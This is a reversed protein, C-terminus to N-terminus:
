RSDDSRLTRRHLIGVTHKKSPDVLAHKYDAIWLAFAPHALTVDIIGRPMIPAM